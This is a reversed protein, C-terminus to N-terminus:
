LHWVSKATGERHYEYDYRELQGAQEAQAPQAPIPTRTERILQVPKEDVCVTPCKPNYPQAYVELVDEMRSVFEGSVEPM